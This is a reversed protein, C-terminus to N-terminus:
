IMQNKNIRHVYNLNHVRCYKYCHILKFAEVSNRGFETYQDAKSTNVEEFSHLETWIFGKLHLGLRYFFM